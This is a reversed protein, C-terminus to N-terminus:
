TFRTDLPYNTEASPNSYRRLRRRGVKITETATNAAEVDSRLIEARERVAHPPVSKQTVM